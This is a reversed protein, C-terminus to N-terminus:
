KGEEMDSVGMAVKAAVAEGVQLKRGSESTANAVATTPGNENNTLAVPLSPSGAVNGDGSTM